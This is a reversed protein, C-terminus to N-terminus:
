PPPAPPPMQTVGLPTFAVEDELPEGDITVRAYLVFRGAPLPEVLSATVVARLGAGQLYNGTIRLDTMQQSLFYVPEGTAEVLVGYEVTSPNACGRCRIAMWYHAGGQPGPEAELPEGETVTRFCSYGLGVEFNGTWDDVGCSVPKPDPDPDPDSPDSTESGPRYFTVDTSCASCTAAVAALLAPALRTWIGAHM